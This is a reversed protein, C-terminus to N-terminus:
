FREVFGLVRRAVEVLIPRPRNGGPAAGSEAIEDRRSSQPLWVLAAMLPPRAINDHSFIAWQQV